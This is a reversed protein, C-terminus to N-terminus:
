GFSILGEVLGYVFPIVVAALLLWVITRIYSRLLKADRSKDM